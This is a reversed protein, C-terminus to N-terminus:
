WVGEERFRMILDLGLEGRLIELMDPVDLLERHGFVLGTVARRMEEHNEKGLLPSAYVEGAAHVFDAADWGSQAQEHFKTLALSRLETIGYKASLSYLKAHTTLKEQTPTSLSPPHAPITETEATTEVPTQHEPAPEPVPTDEAAPAKGKKKKKKKDKKGPTEDPTERTELVPTDAVPAIDQADPVQYSPEPHDFGNTIVVPSDISLGDINPSGNEPCDPPSVPRLLEAPLTDSYNLNYLYEIVLHVAQPDDDTM